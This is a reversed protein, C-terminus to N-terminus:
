NAHSAWHRQICPFTSLRGALPVWTYAYSARDEAAAAALAAVHQGTLPELRVLRGQLAFPRLPM